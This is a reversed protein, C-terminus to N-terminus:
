FQQEERDNAANLLTVLRTTPFYTQVQQTMPCTM